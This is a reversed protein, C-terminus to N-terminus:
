NDTKGDRNVQETSTRWTKEKIVYQPAQNQGIYIRGVYEGILGVALLIVGGLFLVIVIMSTFGLVIDPNLLKRIVFVIGLIFGICSFVIGLLSAARLPLVSFATFGNIWLKILKGLSYNSRGEKRGRHEVDIEAINSTVRFVLGGLYPFSNTYRIMEDKVFRRMAYFSNGQIGAPKETLIEAMKRNLWSGLIRFPSKEYLTYKAYVVDYGEHLKDIMRSIASPDSQGDDDMTVIIDGTAHRYGALTAAHQGFNKSFLIGHVSDYKEQLKKIESWVNDPSCDCVLIIEYDWKDLFSILEGVVSAIMRESRYCPIIVSIKEDM